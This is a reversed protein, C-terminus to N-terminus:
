ADMDEYGNQRMLEGFESLSRAERAYLAAELARGKQRPTAQQDSAIQEIDKTLLELADIWTGEISPGEGGCSAYVHVEMGQPCATVDLGINGDFQPQDAWHAIDVQAIQPAGSAGAYGYWDNQTFNRFEIRAM